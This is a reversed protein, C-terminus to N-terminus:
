DKNVILQGHKYHRMTMRVPEIKRNGREISSNMNRLLHSSRNTALFRLLLEIFQIGRIAWLVLISCGACCPGLPRRRSTVRESYSEMRLIRIAAFHGPLLH